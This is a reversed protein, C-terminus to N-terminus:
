CRELRIIDTEQVEHVCQVQMQSVPESYYRMLREKLNMAVQKLEAYCTLRVDSYSISFSLM